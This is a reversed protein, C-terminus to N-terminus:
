FMIRGSFQWDRSTNAKTSVTGFSSSAANVSLVATGIGGFRVTNFRNYVDAAFVFKAERWIPFTGRFSSNINYTGPCFLNNAGVRGINGIQYTASPVTFATPNIFKIASAAATV